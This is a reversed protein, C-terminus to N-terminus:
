RPWWWRSRGAGSPLRSPAKSRRKWGLDHKLATRCVFWGAAFDQVIAGLSKYITAAAFLLGSLLWIWGYMRM